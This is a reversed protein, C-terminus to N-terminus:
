IQIQTDIDVPCNLSRAILCARHSKDIVREALAESGANIRLVPRILIHKFRYGQKPVFELEGTASSRYDKIELQSRAAILKIYNALCIEAAAVLLHEPSYRDGDHPSGVPLDKRGSISLAGDATDGQWQYSTQYEMPLDAM